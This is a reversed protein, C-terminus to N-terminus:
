GRRSLREERYARIFRAAVAPVIADGAGSLVLSRWAKAAVLGMRESGASGAGVRVPLGHALAVSWSEAGVRRPVFGRGFEREDCWVIAHDDWPSAGAAEVSAQRSERKLLHVALGDPREGNADGMGRGGAGSPGPLGDDAGDGRTLPADARGAGDGTPYDLRSHHSPRPQKGHRERFQEAGELRASPSEAVWFIRHRQHPAGVSAAPLVVAAVAYALSELDAQVGDLWALGDRSDVQEGFIVPPRCESVLRFFVPWLHRDDATGKRLGANSFPQCPLSATWVPGDWGALELALPWGAIGAFWHCQDYGVLDAPRVDEISRDDVDGEPLLGQAILNRLWAAKGPHNENLYLTM